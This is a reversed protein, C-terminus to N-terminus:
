VQDHSHASSIAAIVAAIFPWPQEHDHDHVGASLSGKRVNQARRGLGFVM